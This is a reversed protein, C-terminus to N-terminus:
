IHNYKVAAWLKPKVIKGCVKIGNDEFPCVM